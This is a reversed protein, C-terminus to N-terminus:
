ARECMYVMCSVLASLCVALNSCGSASLCRRPPQAGRPRRPWAIDIAADCAFVGGRARACSSGRTAARVLAEAAAAAVAARAAAAGAAAGATAGADAGMCGGERPSLRPARSSVRRHPRHCTWMVLGMTSPLPRTTTPRSLAWAALAARSAGVRTWM